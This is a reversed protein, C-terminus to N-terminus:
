GPYKTAGFEDLQQFFSYRHALVSFTTARDHCRPRRRCRCNGDGARLVAAITPLHLHRLAKNVRGVPVVYKGGHRTDILQVFQGASGVLCCSWYDKDYEGAAFNPLGGNKNLLGVPRKTKKKAVWGGGDGFEFDGEQSDDYETDSETADDDTDGDSAVLESV